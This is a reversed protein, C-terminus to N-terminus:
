ENLGMEGLVKEIEGGMVEFKKENLFEKEKL